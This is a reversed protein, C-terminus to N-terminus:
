SRGRRFADVTRTERWESKSARVVPIRNGKFKPHERKMMYADAVQEVDYVCIRLSKDIM